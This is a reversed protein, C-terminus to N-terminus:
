YRYSASLFQVYYDGAKGDLTGTGNTQNVKADGQLSIEYALGYFRDNGLAWEAGIGLKL